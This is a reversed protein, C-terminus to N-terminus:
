EGTFKQRLLYYFFPMDRLLYRKWLRKPELMLRWLWELGREQLWRPARKLHGSIFSFSAGVEIALPVFCGAQHRAIWQVGKPFGLSTFLVAPKKEALLSCIKENEVEDKEFGHYPFYAGAIPLGPYREQLRVAAQAAVGEPGGLLFVPFNKRAALACIKEMLDTGNIRERLPRKLLRAAWLLPVGDAMVLVANQYISRLASEKCNAVLQDVNATILQRPSSQAMMLEARELVDAMSLNDIRTKLITVSPVPTTM